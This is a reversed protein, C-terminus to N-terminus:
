SREPHAIAEAARHVETHAEVSMPVRLAREVLRLCRAREDRVACEEQSILYEGHAIWVRRAEEFRLRAGEHSLASTAWGLVLGIMVGLGLALGVQAWGVEMM